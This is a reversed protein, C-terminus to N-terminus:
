TQLQSNLERLVSRELSFDYLYQDLNLSPQTEYRQTDSRSSQITELIKCCKFPVDGYCSNSTSSNQQMQDFAVKGYSNSIQQQQCPPPQDNSASLFVFGDEEDFEKQEGFRSDIEYSRGKNGQHHGPVIKEYLGSLFSMKM